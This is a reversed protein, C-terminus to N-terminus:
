NGSLIAVFSELLQDEDFSFGTIDRAFVEFLRSIPVKILTWKTETPTKERLRIGRSTTVRRSRLPASMLLAKTLYKSLYRSVRHVDVLQIDVMYGGGVAVWAQRIWEIELYRNILIHLHPNGNKQFELIRIYQISTGHKRALYVRLV